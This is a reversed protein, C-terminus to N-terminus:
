VSPLTFAFKTGKGIESEVRIEGGHAEVLNRAITLGLGSGQSTPGKYFRDFVRPLEGAAIGPGNDAVSITVSTDDRSVSVNVTSSHRVANSLLNVLVERIRLPDITILPLDDAGEVHITAGRGSMSSVADHLLVTLDSPEKRLALAGSEANALTRLDEVLRSVVRTEDLLEQLRKDDREYVGDLLAELRAQIVALPTRLEHAIDSMMHRRQQENAQLRATMTNFARAVSRLSPPGYERLRTSFDGSGVRDAADVIHTFPLGYRRAAFSFFLLYAVVIAAILWAPQGHRTAFVVLASLAILAVFVCGFRRRVRRM